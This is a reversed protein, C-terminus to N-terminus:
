KKKRGSLLIHLGKEHEARVNNLLQMLIFVTESNCNIGKHFFDIQCCNHM